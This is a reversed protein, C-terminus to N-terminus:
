EQDSVDNEHLSISFIINRVLLVLRTRVMACYGRDVCCISIDGRVFFCGGLDNMFLPSDYNKLCRSRATLCTTTLRRMPLSMPWPEM